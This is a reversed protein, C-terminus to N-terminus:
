ELRAAERGGLVPPPMAEGSGEHSVGSGNSVGSGVSEVSGPGSAGARVRCERNIM